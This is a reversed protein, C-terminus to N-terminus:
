RNQPLQGRRRLRLGYPAVGPRPRLDQDCTKTAPRPRLDQTPTIFRITVIASTTPAAPNQSDSVPACACVGGAAPLAACAAAGVMVSTDEWRRRNRRM